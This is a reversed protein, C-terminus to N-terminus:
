YIFLIDLQSIHSTHALHAWTCLSLAQVLHLIEFVILLNPYSNEHSVKEENLHPKFTMIKSDQVGRSFNFM